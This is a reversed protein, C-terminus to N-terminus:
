NNPFPRCIEDVNYDPNIASINLIIHVESRTFKAIRCIEVTKKVDLNSERLFSEHLIKANLGIILMDRLLSEWLRELEGDNIFKRLETVFDNFSQGIEQRYTFFKFRSFIINKIPNFYAEFQEITKELKLSDATTSFNLTDYAERAQEGICQLLLSSKVNDPKEDYETPIMLLVFDLKATFKWWSKVTEPTEVQRYRIKKQCWTRNLLLSAFSYVQNLMSRYQDLKKVYLSSIVHETFWLYIVLCYSKITLHIIILQDIFYYYSCVCVVRNVWLNAFM